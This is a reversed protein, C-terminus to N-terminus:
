LKSPEKQETTSLIVIGPDRPDVWFPKNPSGLESMDIDVTNRHCAKLYPVPAIGEVLPFFRNLPNSEDIEMVLAYVGQAHLDNHVHKLLHQFLEDRDPGMAYASYLQRHKVNNQNKDKMIFIKDSDWVSISAESGNVNAIYTTQHYNAGGILIDDFDELIWNFDKFAQEWRAKIKAGDQENYIKVPMNAVMNTTLPVPRTSRWVYRMHSLSHAKLIKLMKIVPTNGKYVISEVLFRNNNGYRERGLSLMTNVFDLSLNLGKLSSNVVGDCVLFIQVTEGDILVNKVACFNCGIVDGTTKDAAVVIVNNRYLSPRTTYSPPSSAAEILHLPTTVPIRSFKSTYQDDSQRFERVEINAKIKAKLAPDM